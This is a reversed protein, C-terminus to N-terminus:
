ETVGGDLQFAAPLPEIANTETIRFRSKHTLAPLNPDYRLLLESEYDGPTLIRTWLFRILRKGGAQVLTNRIEPVTLKDIASGQSDKVELSVDLTAGVLGTNSVTAEFIYGKSELKPSSLGDVRVMASVPTPSTLRVLTSRRSLAMPSDDLKVDQRFGTVAAYQEGELPSNTSATLLVRRKGLPPLEFTDPSISLSPIASHGHAAQSRLVFDQGDPTREWHLMETRIPLTERTLNVIELPIRKAAGPRLEIETIPPSIVFGPPPFVEEKQSTSDDSSVLEPIGNRLNFPFRAKMPTQRGLDQLTISAIYEGDTLNLPSQTQLLREHMPLLFGRGASLPQEGLPQGEISLVEVNGVVRTHINGRNRLPVGMNLSRGDENMSFLPAGPEAIAELLGGRVTLMIVIYNRHRFKVSARLGDQTIEDSPSVGTEEADCSILAYYGGTTERPCKLDIFVQRGARPGLEFSPEKLTLWDRCSRPADEVPTPLGDGTVRMSLFSVSCRIPDALSNQIAFSLRKTAGPFAEAELISPSVSLAADARGSFAMLLLILTFRQWKM